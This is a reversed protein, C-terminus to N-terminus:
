SWKLAKAVNSWQPPQTSRAPAAECRSLPKSPATCHEPAALLKAPMVEFCREVVQVKSDGAKRVCSGAHQLIGSRQAAAAVVPKM